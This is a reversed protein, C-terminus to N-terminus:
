LYMIWGGIDTSDHFSGVLSLGNTLQFCMSHSCLLMPMQEDIPINSCDINRRTFCSKKVAHEQHHWGGEPIPYKYHSGDVNICFNVYSNDTMGSLLLTKSPLKMRIVSKM